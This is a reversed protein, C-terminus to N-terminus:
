KAESRILGSNVAWTHVMVRSDGFRSRLAVESRLRRPCEVLKAAGPEAELLQGLDEELAPAAPLWWIVPHGLGQQPGWLTDVILVGEGRSMCECVNLWSKGRNQFVKRFKRGTQYVGLVGLLVLLVVPLILSSVACEQLCGTTSIFLAVYYPV